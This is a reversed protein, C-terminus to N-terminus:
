GEKLASTLRQNADLADRWACPWVNDCSRCWSYTGSGDVTPRVDETHGWEERAVLTSLAEAAELAAVIKPLSLLPCGEFHGSIPSGTCFDCQMGIAGALARAADLPTM